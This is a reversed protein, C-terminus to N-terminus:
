RRGWVFIDFGIVRRAILALAITEAILASSIAIAAGVAGFHPILLFCLILNLTFAGGYVLACPRQQGIVNLFREMPGIAARAILGAALIFMLHYGETFQPGFLALLPKGLALLLITAALSPWFTWRIAQRLFIALGERDGATHYASVRHATTAAISFYIFAVLALTKAAAYYVAVDEPSRFQQLVLLDTHTLLLYFSEAMLIPLATGIWVKVDNAKPGAEIRSSLRRNLVVMQGLAPLWIAAASLIMATVADVPLGALYAGAMAVTLLLQRVIYTPVIGLGVWDYSRSIGDQVNALAYAPFAICAIYLPIVTFDDLWPDLLRVIGACLVGVVIAVGVAIWRSRSIFGRLLDLSGRERYEPVFRQAATALGLDLAQGILLVWTWVYVFIGFEFSGMWRAFLLNSIYALVAAAVRILFVTGALRQVLQHEASGLQATLRTWLGALASRPLRSAGESGTLAM